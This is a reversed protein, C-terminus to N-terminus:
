GTLRASRRASGRRGAAMCGRHMRSKGASSRSHYRGAKGEITSQDVGTGRRPSSSMLALSLVGACASTGCAMMHNMHRQPGHEAVWGAADHRMLVIRKELLVNLSRALHKAVATMAPKGRWHPHGETGQAPTRYWEEVVGAKRWEDVTAAFRPDRATMFQAGHDFTALGIRRSALRGGVSHGKEFVIVKRGNRQLESAATLGAMGAGVILVDARHQVSQVLRDSHRM